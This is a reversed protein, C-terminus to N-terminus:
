CVVHRNMECTAEYLELDLANAAALLAFTESGIEDELARLRDAQSPASPRSVNEAVPFAHFLPFEPEIVQQLWRMSADFRDVLGVYPLAHLAALAREREDGYDPRKMRALREGHFNRCQRDQPLALRARVYGALTTGKALQSGFGVDDKQQREFQYASAIRDIPHRMFVIPMVQVDPLDPVPLQATHSSFASAQPNAELWEALELAHQEAPKDEFERTLWRSGFNEHLIKDVSTGANKFLHYHFLVLRSM